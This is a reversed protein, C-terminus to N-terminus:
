SGSPYVVLNLLSVTHNSCWIHRGHLCDLPTQTVKLVQDVSLTMDNLGELWGLVVILSKQQQSIVSIRHDLDEQILTVNYNSQKRHISGKVFHFDLLFISCSFTTNWDIGQPILNLEKNEQAFLFELDSVLDCGFIVHNFSDVEHGM